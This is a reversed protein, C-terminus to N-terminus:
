FFWTGPGEVRDFRTMIMAGQRYRRMMIKTLEAKLAMSM